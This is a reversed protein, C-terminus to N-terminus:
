EIGVHATEILLVPCSECVFFYSGVLTTLVVILHGGMRSLTQHVFRWFSLAFIADYSCCHMLSLDEYGHLVLYSLTDCLWETM